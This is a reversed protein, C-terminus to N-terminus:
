FGSVIQLRRTFSDGGGAAVWRQRQGRVQTGGSVLEMACRSVANDEEKPKAAEEAQKRKDAARQMFKLGMVKSSIKGEM